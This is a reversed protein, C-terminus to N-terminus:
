DRAVMTGAVWDYLTQRRPTLAAPLEQLAWLALLTGICGPDLLRGDGSNTEEARAKWREFRPRTVRRTGASWAQQFAARRLASTLTVPGGTQADVRRIHMVRMGPTRTNRMTVTWLVSVASNARQGRPSNSWEGWREAARTLRRLRQLAQPRWAELAAAAAGGLLGVASGSDILGAAFRERFRAPEPPTM